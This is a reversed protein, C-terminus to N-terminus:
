YGAKQDGFLSPVIIVHLIESDCSIATFNRPEEAKRNTFDAEHLQIKRIDHTQSYRTYVHRERYDQTLQTDPAEPTKAPGNQKQYQSEHKRVGM